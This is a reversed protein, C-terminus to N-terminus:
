GSVFDRVLAALAAPQELHAWHGCNEITQLAAGPIAQQYRRGCELPIIRDQAGWAVLTPVRVKGLMEPLAPNYMFPRYCMRISMTKSAERVGGFEPAPTGYLRRYEPASAPDHFSRDIVQQWPTIFIDFIEEAQPKVGAAGVLVLHALPGTCMVAMEAAIWGGVGIGVLDVPGLGAEQLFWHYFVAQHQVTSLWPPCETQGYGPHSPALVEASSALAEHFALWGEHGEEGHLV